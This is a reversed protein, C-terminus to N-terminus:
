PEIVIEIEQVDSDSQVSSDEDTLSELELEPVSVRIFVDFTGAEEPVGSIIGVNDGQQFTLGQPLRGKTLKFNYDYSDDFPDNEVEARIEWFYAVGVKGPPPNGTSFEVREGFITDECGITLLALVILGTSLFRTLQAARM